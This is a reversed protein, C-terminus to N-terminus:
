GRGMVGSYLDALFLRYVAYLAVTLAIPALWAAAAAAHRRLASPVGSRTRRPPAAALLAERCSKRYARLRAEAESPSRGRFGLELCLSYVQLVGERWPDPRRRDAPALLFDLRKFFDDDANGEAPLVDVALRAGGPVAALRERTWAAVAYWALDFGRAELRRRAALARQVLGQLDDRVRLDRTAIGEPRADTLHAVYSVVPLFAEIYDM